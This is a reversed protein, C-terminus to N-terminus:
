VVDGTFGSIPNQCFKVPIIGPHGGKGCINLNTPQMLLDCPLFYTKLISNKLFELRLSYLGLAKM